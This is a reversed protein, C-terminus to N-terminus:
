KRNNGNMNFPVMTLVSLLNKSIMRTIEEKSKGLKAQLRSILLQEKPWDVTNKDKSVNSVTTNIHLQVGRWTNKIKSNTM